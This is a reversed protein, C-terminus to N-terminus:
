DLPQSFIVQFKLDLFGSEIRKHSLINKKQVGETVWGAKWKIPVPPEKGSLLVVLRFFLYLKIEM